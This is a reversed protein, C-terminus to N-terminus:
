VLALAGGPMSVEELLKEAESPEVPGVKRAIDALAIVGVLRHMHDVVLMRRLQDHKMRGIVDHVHDDPRVLGLSGKTMHSEITCDPGHGRAVHRVAIDRDTIVGVPHMDTYSDVVPVLGVDIHDMIEAARGIPEGATVVTPMPTMVERAKM